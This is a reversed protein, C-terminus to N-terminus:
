RSPGPSTPPRCSSTSRRRGTAQSSITSGGTASAGHGEGRGSRPLPRPVVDGDVARGLARQRVQQATRAGGLRRGPPAPRRPATDGADGEAHRRDDAASRVPLQRGRRADQRGRRLSCAPDRRRAPCPQDEGLAVPTRARRRSRRPHRRHEARRPGRLRRPPNRPASQLRREGPQDSRVAPRPRVQRALRRDPDLERGQHRPRHMVGALDAADARGARRGQGLADARLVARARTRRPPSLARRLSRPHRWCRRDHGRRRGRHPDGLAGLRLHDGRESRARPPGVAGTRRRDRPDHGVRRDRWGARVCAARLRRVLVVLLVAEAACLGALARAHVVAPWARGPLRTAM